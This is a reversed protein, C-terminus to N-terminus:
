RGFQERVKAYALAMDLTARAGGAAEAAALVRLLRTAAAAAGALVEGTGDARVTAIGLAPDVGDVPAVHVAEGRLVVVDAGSRVLHLSAWVAGLAPGAEGRVGADSREVSATLAVSATTSGDALGPLLAAQQAATGCQAVLASALVTPVLPGGGAERGLGEVVVALEPLGYGSGGHDEPLHLGAWGLGALQKWLPDPDAGPAPPSEVARRTAARVGQEVAFERVVATLDTHEETIALGM